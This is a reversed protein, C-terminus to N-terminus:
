IEKGPQMAGPLWMRHCWADYIVCGEDSIAYEVWFTVHRPRWSGVFHGSEKELFKQGTREIGEVAEQVDQRLIFRDEMRALVDDAILLPIAAAEPPPPTEGYEALAFQPVRCPFRRVKGAADFLESIQCGKRKRVFVHGKRLSGAPDGGAIRAYRGGAPGNQDRPLLDRRFRCLRQLM